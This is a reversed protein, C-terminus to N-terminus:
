NRIPALINFLCSKVTGMNFLSFLERKISIVRRRNATMIEIVTKGKMKTAGEILNREPATATFSMNKM